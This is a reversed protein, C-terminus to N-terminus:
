WLQSQLRPVVLKQARKGKRGNCRQHAAQLNSPDLTLFRQTELDLNRFAARPVKHDVNTSWRSRPPADPYLARGCIACVSAEAVVRARANGWEHATVNAPLRM